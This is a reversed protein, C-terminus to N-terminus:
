QNKKSVALGRFELLPQVDPLQGYFEKFLTLSDASFGKSLVKARLFDGNARELGGHTHFWQEADKALVDSWIYAYYGASYGSEFIHAFYPTHYRPPVAYFDVGAKKLAATEFAMVDKAQPTKGASLQHWAQDLLAAALYESTAFGENFKTAALIKDMLAQPMPEGTQFHRAFHALVKPDRSWMENF